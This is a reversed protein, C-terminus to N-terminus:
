NVPENKEWDIACGFMSNALYSKKVHIRYEQSIAVITAILLLILNGLSFVEFGSSLLRTAVMYLVFYWEMINPFYLLFKEDKTIASYLQGVSRMSFLILIVSFVPLSFSYILIFVYWWWDFIKDYVHYKKWPWGAKYSIFGDPADLFLNIFMAVFPHTFIIPPFVARLLAVVWILIKWGYRKM